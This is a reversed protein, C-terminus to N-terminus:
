MFKNVSGYSLNDGRKLAKLLPFLINIEKEYISKIFQRVKPIISLDKTIFAKLMLNRAILAETEIQAYKKCVDSEVIGLGNMYNLRLKMIQKHELLVCPVRYDIPFSGSEVMQLFRDIYEYCKLGFINNRPKYYMSLRINSDKSELYDELLGTVLELNFPYEITNNLRTPFIFQTWWADKNYGHAHAEIFDKFSVTSVNFILDQDFGLVNFFQKSSDYGFLFIDHTLNKKKYVLRNPIYYEDVFTYIYYGKDILRMFFNVDLRDKNELISRDIKLTQLNPINVENFPYYFFNFYDSYRNEIFNVDFYLQIYNSYFWPLYKTSTALVSLGYAHHLYSKIPPDAIPLVKQLEIEESKFNL